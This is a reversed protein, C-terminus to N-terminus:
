AKTAALATIKTLNHALVGYGCWIRAGTLGDLRLQVGDTVAIPTFSHGAGVAKVRLGARAARRVAAVLDDVDRPEAIAAPACRQNGAWNAWGLTM